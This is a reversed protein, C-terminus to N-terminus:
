SVYGYGIAQYKVKQTLNLTLPCLIPYRGLIVDACTDFYDYIITLGQAASVVM